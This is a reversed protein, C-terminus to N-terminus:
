QLGTPHKLEQKTPTLRVGKAPSGSSVRHAKQRLSGPFELGQASCLRPAKMILFLAKPGVSVIIKILFGGVGSFITYTIILAGINCVDRM